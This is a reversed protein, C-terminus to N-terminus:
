FSYTTVVHNRTSALDISKYIINNYLKPQINIFLQNIINLGIENQLM